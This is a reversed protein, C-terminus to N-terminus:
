EMVEVTFSPKSKSITLVSDVKKKDEASLKKYATKDLEYKKRLGVEVLPALDQDVKYDLKKVVKLKLNDKEFSFSGEDKLDLEGKYENYLDVELELKLSQLMKIEAQVELWRKMTM